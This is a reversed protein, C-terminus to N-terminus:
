ARSKKHKEKTERPMYGQMDKGFRQKRIRRWEPTVTTFYVLINIGVV